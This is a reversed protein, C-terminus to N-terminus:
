TFPFEILISTQAGKIEINCNYFILTSSAGNQIKINTLRDAVFGTPLTLSIRGVGAFLGDSYFIGPVYSTDNIYAKTANLILAIASAEPMPTTFLFSHVVSIHAPVIDRVKAYLNADAYAGEYRLSVSYDSLYTISALTAYPAIALALNEFNGKAGGFLLTQVRQRRSTVTSGDPVVLKLMKEWRGIGIETMTDAFAQTIIDAIEVKLAALEYSETELIEMMELISSYLDEPLYSKLATFEEPQGM